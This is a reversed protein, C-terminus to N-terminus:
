QVVNTGSCLCLDLLLFTRVCTLLFFTQMWTFQYRIPIYRIPLYLVGWGWLFFRNPWKLFMYGPSFVHWLDVIRGLCCCDEIRCSIWELWKMFQSWGLMVCCSCLTPLHLTEGSNTKGPHKERKGYWVNYMVFASMLNNIIPNLLISFIHSMHLCRTAKEKQNYLLLCAM